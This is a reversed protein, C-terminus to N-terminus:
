IEVWGRTVRMLSNTGRIRRYRWNESILLIEPM